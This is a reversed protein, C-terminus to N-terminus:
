IVNLHVLFERNGKQGRIPSECQAAIAFGQSRIGDLVSAVVEEVHDDPLVGKKLASQDAEYHPKILSIICGRPALLRAASLLIHKQRTWGVDITALQVPEPLQVHLANTRELVTVNPHKRLVWALEGYGTDVAYVRAAGHQLLCDVFGGVNCGLDACTLGTPDIAFAQLAAALKLGGRSVYTSEPGPM